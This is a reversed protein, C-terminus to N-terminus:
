PELYCAQSYGRELLLVESSERIVRRFMEIEKFVLSGQRGPKSRPNLSVAATCCKASPATFYVSVTSLFWQIKSFEKITVLMVSKQHRM